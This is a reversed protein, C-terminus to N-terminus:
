INVNLFAVNFCLKFRVFDTDSIQIQRGNPFPLGHMELSDNLFRALNINFRTFSPHGSYQRKLDAFTVKRLKSGITFKGPNVPVELDLPVEADELDAYFKDSMELKSRIYSAVERNHNIRLM